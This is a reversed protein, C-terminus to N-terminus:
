YNLRLVTSPGTAVPTIVFLDDHERDGLKIEGPYGLAKLFQPVTNSHAVIVVVGAKDHARVMDLTARVGDSGSVAVPTIGLTRALPEATQVTRKLSSTYIATVGADKLLRALVQARAEGAESLVGDPSEYEVREAHRLLFIAQQGYAATAHGAILALILSALRTTRGLGIMQNVATM